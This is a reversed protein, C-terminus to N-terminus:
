FQLDCLKNLFHVHLIAHLKKSLVMLLAININAGLCVDRFASRTCLTVKINLM